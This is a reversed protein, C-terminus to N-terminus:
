ADVQSSAWFGDQNIFGSGIPRQYCPGVFTRATAMAMAMRNGYEAMLADFYRPANKWPMLLHSIPISRPTLRALTIGYRRIPWPTTSTELQAALEARLAEDRESRQRYLRLTPHHEM